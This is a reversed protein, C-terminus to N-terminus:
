VKGCHTQALRATARCLAARALNTIAGDPDRRASRDLASKGPSAGCSDTSAVRQQKTM